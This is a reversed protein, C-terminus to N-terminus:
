HKGERDIRQPRLRRKGSIRLVTVATVADGFLICWCDLLRRDGLLGETNEFQAAIDEFCAASTRAGGL